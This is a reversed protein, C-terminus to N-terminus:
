SQESLQQQKMVKYDHLSKRKKVLESVHKAMLADLVEKRAALTQVNRKTEELQKKSSRLDTECSALNAATQQMDSAQEAKLRGQKLLIHRLHSIANTRQAEEKRKLLEERSLAKSPPPQTHQVASTALGNGEKQHVGGTETGDKPGSTPQAQPCHQPNHAATVAAEELRQRKEKAEVLRQQLQVKRATLALSEALNKTSARATGEGNNDAAAAAAADGTSGSLNKDADLLATEAFYVKEAPGSTRIQTIRLSDLGGKLLANIPRLPDPAVQLTQAALQEKLAKKKALM